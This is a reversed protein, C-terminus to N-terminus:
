EDRPEKRPRRSNGRLNPATAEALAQYLAVKGDAVTEARLERVARVTRILVDHLNVIVVAGSAAKDFVVSLQTSSSSIFEIALQNTSTGRRRFVVAVNNEFCEDRLPNTEDIMCEFRQGLLNAIDVAFQTNVGADVLDKVALAICIDALSYRSWGEADERGSFLGNRRRMSNFTVPNFGTVAVVTSLLHRKGLRNKMM